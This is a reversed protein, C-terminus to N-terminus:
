RVSHGTFVGGPEARHVLMPSPLEVFDSRGASILLLPDDGRGLVRTDPHAVALRREVEAGVIIQAQCAMGGDNLRCAFREIQPTVSQRRDAKDAARLADVLLELRFEAFKEAGFVGNEVRGAK